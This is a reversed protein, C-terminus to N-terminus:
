PSNAQLPTTVITSRPHLLQSPLVAPLTPPTNPPRSLPDLTTKTAVKSSPRLALLRAPDASASLWRPRPTAKRHAIQAAIM